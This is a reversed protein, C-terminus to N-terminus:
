INRTHIFIHAFKSLNAPIFSGRRQFGAKVTDKEEEKEEEGEWDEGTPRM